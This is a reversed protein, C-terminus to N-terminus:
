ASRALFAQFYTNLSGFNTNFSGSNLTFMEIYDTTGNCLVLTAITAAAGISSAAAIGGSKNLSGNKYIVLFCGGTTQGAMNIQGTVSYYGPVTPTFRSASTNDFNSNTDFEKTNFLIKTYTGAPIAQATSNFASFAPAASVGVSIGKALVINQAADVTIAVTGGVATGSRLELIGDTAGTTVLGSSAANGAQIISPM